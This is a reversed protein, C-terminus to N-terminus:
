ISYSYENNGDKDRVIGTINFWSESYTNVYIKKNEVGNNFEVSYFYYIIDYISNKNYYLDIFYYQDKDLQNQNVENGDVDRVIVNFDAEYNKNYLVAKEITLGSQNAVIDLPLYPLSSTSIPTSIISLEDFDNYIEDSFFARFEGINVIFEFDEYNVKITQVYSEKNLSIPALEVKIISYNLDKNLYTTDTELINEVIFNDFKVLENFVINNTNISNSFFVVQMLVHDSNTGTYYNQTLVGFQQKKSNNSILSFAYLTCLVFIVIVFAIVYKSKLKHKM